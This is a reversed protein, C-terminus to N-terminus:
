PRSTSVDRWLLLLLTIVISNHTSCLYRSWLISAYDDDEVNRIMEEKRKKQKQERPHKRKRRRKRQPSQKKEKRNRTPEEKRQLSQKKERRHRPRRQKGM